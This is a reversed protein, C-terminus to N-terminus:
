KKPKPGRKPRNAKFADLQAKTFVWVQGNIKTGHLDKGVHQRISQIHKFGLYDRAEESTYFLKAETM